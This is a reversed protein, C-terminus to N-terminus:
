DTARSQRVSVAGTSGPSRGATRSRLQRASLSLWALKRFFNEEASGNINSADRLKESRNWLDGVGLRVCQQWVARRVQLALFASDIEKRLPEKPLNTTARLVRLVGKKTLRRKHLRGWDDICRAVANRVRGARTRSVLANHQRWARAIQRTENPFRYRLAGVSVGLRGAVQRLSLTLRSREIVKVLARYMERQDALHERPLPALSSPLQNLLCFGFVHNIGTVDGSFLEPLTISLQFAVRRAMPLSMRRSGAYRSMELLEVHAFRDPCVGSEKLSAILTRVVTCSGSAPFASPGSTIERVLCVLDPACDTLPCNPTRGRPKKDLRGGCCDCVNLPAKRCWGSQTGGCSPCADRLLVRHHICAKMGLLQWALKLYVTDSEVVQEALCLPCWRLHTAFSSASRAMATELPLLTAARLTDASESCVRALATVVLQTTSNPRVLSGLSGSLRRNASNVRRDYPLSDLLSAVPVAHLYALRLLYSPLSEVDPTEKGQLVLPFLRIM